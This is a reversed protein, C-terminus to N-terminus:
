HHVAGVFSLIYCDMLLHLYKKTNKKVNKQLSKKCTKNATVRLVLKRDGSYLYTGNRNMGQGTDLYVETSKGVM